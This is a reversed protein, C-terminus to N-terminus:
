PSTDATDLGALLEAISAHLRPHRMDSAIEAAPGLVFRREDLRPHPVQLGPEDITQDGYLLLDLDITRPGWHIERTRGLEAEIALLATLLDRPALTTEIRAAANLYVDQGAPGGVPSTEHITSIAVVRIQPHTALRELARRLNAHRDGLNSGLAILCDM